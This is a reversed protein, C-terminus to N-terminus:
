NWAGKVPAEQVADDADFGDRCVRLGFRYVRDHHARVLLALAEDDGRAAMTVQLAHDRM